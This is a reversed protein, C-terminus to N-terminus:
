PGSVAHRAFFKLVDVERGKPWRRHNGESRRPTCKNKFGCNPEEGDGEGLRLWATEAGQADRARLWREVSECSFFGDCARYVVMGPPPPGPCSWVARPADAAYAAYAAVRDARMMAFTAAMHGGYSAGLTYMRRKDVLGKRDIEAIFHDVAAVDINDPGTYETEFIAGRKGRKLARGQPALV